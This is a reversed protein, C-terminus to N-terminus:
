NIQPKTWKMKPISLLGNRLLNIQIYFYNASPGSRTKEKKKQKSWQPSYNIFSFYFATQDMSPQTRGLRRLWECGM